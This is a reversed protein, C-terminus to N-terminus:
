DGNEVTFQPRTRAIAGIVATWTDIVSPDEHELIIGNQGRKTQIVLQTQDSQVSVIDLIEASGKKNIQM